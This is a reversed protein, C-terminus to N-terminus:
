YLCCVSSDSPRPILSCAVFAPTLFDPFSVAVVWWITTIWHLISKLSCLAEREWRVQAGARRSYGAAPAHRLYQTCRQAGLWWPAEHRQADHDRSWQISLAQPLLLFAPLLSPPLSPPLSPLLSPFLHPLSWVHFPTKHHPLILSEVTIVENM